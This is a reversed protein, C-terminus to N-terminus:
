VNSKTFAAKVITFGVLGLIAGTAKDIYYALKSFKSRVKDGSLFIVIASDWIFVISAMWIGLMIKFTLSVDKTLVVTFLSLYFLINKPNLIASMFGVIFEKFFTTENHAGRNVQSSLGAYDSKKARLAQIALYILFLGGAIKLGIMIYVSSALLSGVGILCLAIYLANAISIGLAVGIAKKSENKVASKVLIVFDPGPSILALFHAFAVTAFIGILSIDM